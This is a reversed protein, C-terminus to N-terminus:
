DGDIEVILDNIQKIVAPTLGRALYSRHVKVIKAHIAKRQTYYAQSAEQARQRASEYEPVALLKKSLQDAEEEAEKYKDWAKGLNGGSRLDRFLLQITTRNPQDMPTIQKSKVM